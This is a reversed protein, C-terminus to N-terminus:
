RACSRISMMQPKKMQVASRQTVTQEAASMDGRVSAEPAPSSVQMMGRRERKPPRKARPAIMLSGRVRAVLRIAEAAVASAEVDTAM